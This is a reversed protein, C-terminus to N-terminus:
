QWAGLEGAAGLLDGNLNVLVVSARGLEWGIRAAVAERVKGALADALQRREESSLGAFLGEVTAPEPVEGGLLASAIGAVIPVASGSRSSHTDWEGATLKALKGPHGVVLLEAFGYRPFQELVFGWENGVEVVQVEALRFHRRAAREGIHGPVLVPSKIGNAEAVDLM